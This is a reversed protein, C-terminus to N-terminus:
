SAKSGSWCGTMRISRFITERASRVASQRQTIWLLRERRGIHVLGESRPRIDVLGL